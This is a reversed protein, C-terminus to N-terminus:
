DHAMADLMWGQRRAAVAAANLWLSETRKAAGDARAARDVRLWDGILEDAMQGGGNQNGHSSNMARLTPSVNEAAGNGYDKCSFAILTESDFDLRVGHANCTTAVDISGAINGGGFAILMDVDDTSTGPMRGGGGRNAGTSVPPAVDTVVLGGDCDFDTGLGGGGKTRASLTPAIVQGAERRPAPNGSMSERDLLVASAGASNGFCGVVFLRRRRQPVARSFMGVRVYQADLVRYSWGYGLEGLIKLITGLTRGKDHSLAGPVNEWVIWKPRLREALALFELTLNGRPDDLGARKGAISFSQCPTGGVLLDIPGVHHEEIKTFDGFFPTINSGSSHRHDWYVAVAGHRQELVARPFGEIESFGAASWGLDRWGLTAACVGACVSLYRM